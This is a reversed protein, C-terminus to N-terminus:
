PTMLAFVERSINSPRILNKFSKEKQNKLIRAIAIDDGREAQHRQLDLIGRIDSSTAM